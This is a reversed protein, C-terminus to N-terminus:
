RLQHATVSELVGSGLEHIMEFACEIISRTLKAHLLKNDQKDQRDINRDKMAAVPQLLGRWDISDQWASARGKSRVSEPFGKAAAYTLEM